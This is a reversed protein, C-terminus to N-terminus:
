GTQAARGPEARGLRAKGACVMRGDGFVCRGCNWGGELHGVRGVREGGIGVALSGTEIDVKRYTEGDCEETEDEEVRESAADRGDELRSSLQMVGAVTKIVETVAHKRGGCGAVAQESPQQGGQSEIQLGNCICM